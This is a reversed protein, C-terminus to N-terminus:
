RFRRRRHLAIWSRALVVGVTAMSLGGLIMSIFLSYDFKYSGTAPDYVTCFLKIRNVLGDISTMEIRGGYVLQKLPEVILPADFDAGYIHRYVRGDTDIVTTQTMHDYGQPSPNFTFGLDRSLQDITDANASLFDWGRINLGREAAYMRMREPTDNHADFGISVVRFSDEGVADKAVEIADALHESIMPCVDICGTYILSIILPKDMLDSLNILQNHRDTFELSSLTNGLAAQSKDLAIRTDSLNKDTSAIAGSIVAICVFLATSLGIFMRCIGPLVAKESLPPTIDDKYKSLSVPGAMAISAIAPSIQNMTVSHLYRVFTIM